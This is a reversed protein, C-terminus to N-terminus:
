SMSEWQRSSSDASARGYHLLPFGRRLSSDHPRDIRELSYTEVITGPVRDGPERNAGIAFLRDIAREFESKAETRRYRATLRKM